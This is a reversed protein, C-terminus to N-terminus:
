AAWQGALRLVAWIAALHAPYFVYFFHRPLRVRARARVVILSALSALQIDLGFFLLTLAGLAAPAWRAPVYRFLLVLLVGYLGYDFFRSVGAFAALGAFGWVVGCDFLQLLVLGAALTYVANLCRMGLLFCFVQAASAALLLRFLYRPLSRTTGYGVAAGMAFVPFALRGVVRLWRVEPLLYAGVHDVVMAAAAILYAFQKGPWAVADPRRLETVRKQDWQAEDAGSGCAGVTWVGYAGRVHELPM